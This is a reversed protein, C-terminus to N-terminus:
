SFVPQLSGAVVLHRAEIQASHTTIRRFEPGLHIAVPVGEVAKSDYLEIMSPFTQANSRILFAEISGDLHAEKIESGGLFDLILDKVPSAAKDFIALVDPANMSMFGRHAAANLEPDDHFPEIKLVLESM